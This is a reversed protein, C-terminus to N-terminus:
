PADKPSPSKGERNSDLNVTRVKKGDEIFTVAKYDDRPVSVILPCAFTTDPTAKSRVTYRLQVVGREVTVGQVKYEWSANGRKIAALVVNSKFADKPLRHSKDFRSSASPCMATM